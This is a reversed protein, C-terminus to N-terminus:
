GAAECSSLLQGLLQVHPCSAAPGSVQRKATALQRQTESVGGSFRGLLSGLWGGGGGADSASAGEAAAAEAPGSHEDGSSADSSLNAPLPEPPAVYGASDEYANYGNVAMGRQLFCSPAPEPHLPLLLVCGASDEYASRGNVAAGRRLLLKSPPKM